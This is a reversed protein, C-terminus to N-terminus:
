TGHAVAYGRVSASKANAKEAKHNARGMTVRAKLDRHGSLM